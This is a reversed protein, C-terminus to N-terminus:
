APAALYPPNLPEQGLVFATGNANPMQVMLHGVLDYRNAGANWTINTIEVRRIAYQSSWWAPTTKRPYNAVPYAQYTLKVQRPDAYQDSGWATMEVEAIQPAPPVVVLNPEQDTEARVEHTPLASIIKFRRIPQPNRYAGVNDQRQAM